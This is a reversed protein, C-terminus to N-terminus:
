KKTEPAQAPPMGSPMGAGHPNGGNKSAGMGGRGKVVWQDGKRELTYNMKMGAGPDSSGKPRFSVVADAEDKRFTVSAIEIDMSNVDLGAKKTLHEMVGKRISEQNQINRSCGCIM